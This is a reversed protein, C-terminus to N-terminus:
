GDQRVGLRIADVEVDVARDRIADAMATFVERSSLDRWQKGSASLADFMDDTPNALLEAVADVAKEDGLRQMLLERMTPADPEAIIELVKAAAEAPPVPWGQLGAFWRTLRIEAQTKM